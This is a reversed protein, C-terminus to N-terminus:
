LGAVYECPGNASPARRCWADAPASGAHSASGATLGLIVAATVAAAIRIANKM